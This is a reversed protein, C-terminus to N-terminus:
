HRLLLRSLVYHRLDDKIAFTFDLHGFAEFEKYTVNLGADRMHAYHELVNERAIVGDARGACGLWCNLLTRLRLLTHQGRTVLLYPSYSTCVPHQIIQLTGHLGWTCADHLSLCRCHAVFVHVRSRTAHDGEHGEPAFKKLASSTCTALCFILLRTSRSQLLLRPLRPPGAMIDVPFDLLRYNGAVNLPVASGYHARNTAGSGYDYLQFRGSQAWQARARMRTPRQPRQAPRARAFRPACAHLGAASCSSRRAGALTHLVLPAQADPAHM